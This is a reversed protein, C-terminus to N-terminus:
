NGLKHFEKWYHYSNVVDQDMKVQGGELIKQWAAFNEMEEPTGLIGVYPTDFYTVQLGDQVLLNYVLTVYFEGKHSAGKLILEDCYKKLLYGTKFYYAGTSAHEEMPNDTFAEKERVEQVTHHDTKVFAMKTTALTHPHFGSHTLICGHPEADELHRVFSSRRWKLVADCYNVVVEERNDIFPYAGQVTKVPGLKHGPIGVITANPKLKSLVERMNTQKLHDENCVFVFSDEPAYAELVYEILRKGNIRILPKPETYGKEVFRNGTGAMPIIIKM